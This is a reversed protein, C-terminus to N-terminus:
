ATRILSMYNANNGTSAMRIYSANPPITNGTLTGHGLNNDQEDQTAIGSNYVTFARIFTKSSDYFAVCTWWGCIFTFTM